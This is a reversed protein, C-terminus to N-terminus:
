ELNNACAPASPHWIQSFCNRDSIRRQFQNNDQLTRHQSSNASSAIMTVKGQENRLSNPNEFLWIQWPIDAESFGGLSEVAEQLTM